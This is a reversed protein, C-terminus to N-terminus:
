RLSYRDRLSASVRFSYSASACVIVSGTVVMASIMPMTM